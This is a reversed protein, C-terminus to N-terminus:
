LTSPAVREALAQLVKLQIQQSQGLLSRFGQETVVLLRAPTTTTVTATRPANSVLSIEGLFDGPGLRNITKGGQDVDAEGEVLVVFERGREGERTLAKGAPVDLEDAIGAVLELEQKSLEAFLPVKRILEVKANKGLRM